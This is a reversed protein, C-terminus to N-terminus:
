QTVESKKVVTIAADPCMIACFACATCVDEDTCSVYQVGQRNYLDSFALIRKPCAPICLGCGKCRQEDIIPKGKALQIRRSDQNYVQHFYETLM